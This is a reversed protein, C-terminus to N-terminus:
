ELRFAPPAGLVNLGVNYNADYSTGAPPPYYGAEAGPAPYSAGPMVPQEAGPYAGEGSKYVDTQIVTGQM